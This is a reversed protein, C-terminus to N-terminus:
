GNSTSASEGAPGNMRRAQDKIKEELEQVQLQLKSFGMETNSTNRKLTELTGLRYERLATFTLALEQLVEEKSPINM